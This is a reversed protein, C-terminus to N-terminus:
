HAQKFKNIWISKNRITVNLGVSEHKRSAASQRVNNEFSLLPLVEDMLVAKYDHSLMLKWPFRRCGKLMGWSSEPNGAAANRWLPDFGRESPRRSDIVHAAAGGETFAPSASNSQLKELDVHWQVNRWRRTNGAAVLFKILVFVATPVQSDDADSFIVIPFKLCKLHKFRRFHLKFSTIFLFAM